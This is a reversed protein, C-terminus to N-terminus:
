VEILASCNVACPGGVETVWMIADSPKRGGGGLMDRGDKRETSRSQEFWAGLLLLLVIPALLSGMFSLSWRLDAVDRISGVLIPGSFSGLQAFMYKVAIAQDRYESPIGSFLAVGSLPSESFNYILLGGSLCAIAVLQSPSWLSSLLLPMALVCVTASFMSSIYARREDSEESHYAEQQQSACLRDLLKGGMIVGVVGNFLFMVTCLKGSDSQRMGLHSMLFSPTWFLFSELAMRHLGSVVTFCPFSPHKCVNVAVNASSLRSIEREKQPRHIFRSENYLGFVVAPMALLGIASFAFSAQQWDKMEGAILNGLSFGIISSTLYIATFTSSSGAPAADDVLGPGLTYLASFGLGNIFRLFLLLSYSPAILTFVKGMQAVAFLSYLLFVVRVKRTTTKCAFQAIFPSILANISGISGVLGQVAGPAKGFHQEVHQMLQSMFSWSTFFLCFSWSLVFLQLYPSIRQKDRPEGARVLSEPDVSPEKDARHDFLVVPSPKPFLQVNMEQFPSPPIADLGDECFDLNVYHSARGGLLDLVPPPAQPYLPHPSSKPQDRTEEAHRESSVRHNQQVAEAAILGGQDM